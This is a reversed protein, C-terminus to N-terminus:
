RWHHACLYAEWAILAGYIAFNILLHREGRQLWALANYGLCVFALGSLAAHTWGKLSEFAGADFLRM